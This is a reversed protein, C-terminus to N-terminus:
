LQMENLKSAIRQYDEETFAAPNKPRTERWTYADMTFGLLKAFERQTYGLHERLQKLREWPLSSEDPAPIGMLDGYAVGFYDALRRGITAKPPVDRREWNAISTPNVDIAKALEKKTLGIRERLHTIREAVTGFQSMPKMKKPEPTVELKYIPAERDIEALEAANKFVETMVPQYVSIDLHGDPHLVIHDVINQLIYKQEKISLANFSERFVDFKEGVVVPDFAGSEIAALKTKIEDLQVSIISRESRLARARRAFDNKEMMGEEYADAIRTLKSDIEALRGAFAEKDNKLKATEETSSNLLAKAHNVIPAPDHVIKALTDLVLNEVPGAQTMRHDCVDKGKQLHNYCIYYFYIKGIRKGNKMKVIRRGHMHGGCVSCRLLGGLLYQSERAHPHIGDGSELLENAKYWTEDDIIASVAGEVIIWEKKPRPRSTTGVMKRKNWCAAGRYLPNSIMRKITAGTFSKAYRPKAEMANMRVAVARLSHFRLYDQYMQRVFPAEKENVVLNEDSVKFGFPIVGGNWKGKKAHEVMNERTREAIMDREFQAFSGLINLTLRGMPTSTDFQQSISIFAVNLQELDQILYLLDSLNRSIRDIKAVVVVNFKEERADTLMKQFAPRNETYAGSLGADTYIEHVNIDHFACYDRLQKEQTGLSEADVQMETSVRTYLAAKQKIAEDSQIQQRRKSRRSMGIIKRRALTIPTRKLPQQLVKWVSM